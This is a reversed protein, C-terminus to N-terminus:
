VKEACRLKASRARKNKIVEEEDAEIPHKTIIELEKKIGCRCEKNIKLNCKCDRSKERFFNKVIRDELSHFSIVVIRGKSVLKPIVGKLAEKLATLEDNVYIRIAQFTKTAPDIKSKFYGARKYVNRVIEALEFTTRIFKKERVKIIEKAIQKYLREESYTKIIYGLTQFDFYNVIEFATLSNKQNMRMDLLANTRFSFGRDNIDLQPSSVGLDFLVGNISNNEFFLGIIKFNDTIIEIKKNNKFKDKLYEAANEDQEICYLKGNKLRKVIEESHGGYGATADIYIGNEEIKLYEIVEKLLVPKHIKENM